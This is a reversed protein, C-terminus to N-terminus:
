QYYFHLIMNLFLAQLVILDLVLAHRSISVLMVLDNTKKILDEIPGVVELFKERSLTLTTCDTTAVINAARPEVKLIAREGFFDGPGYVQNDYTRGGVEIDEVSVKGEKLVYFELGQEGKQIIRAGKKFKKTEVSNAIKNLYEIELDKLFSVKRLTDLVARDKNLTTNALIQRFANQDVRWLQCEGVATCTAARPCDYLLALDGFSSGVAAEGVNNGGVTFVVSGTHLIYFYDGVEGETIIPEGSSAKYSQFANILNELEASEVGSFIFNDQVALEIFRRDEPTKEYIPFVFDESIKVPAAFINKLRPLQAASNAAQAQNQGGSGRGTAVPKGTIDLVSERYHRRPKPTSQEESAVSAEADKICQNGMEYTIGEM